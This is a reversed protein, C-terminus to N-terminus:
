TEFSLLFFIALRVQPLIGKWDWIERILKVKLAYVLDVLWTDLSMMELNRALVKFCGFILTNRSTEMRLKNYARPLATHIVWATCVHDTFSLTIYKVTLDWHKSILLEWYGSASCNSFWWSNKKHFGSKGQLSKMWIIVLGVLMRLKPFSILYCSFTTNAATPKRDTVFSGM